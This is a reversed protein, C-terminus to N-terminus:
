ALKLSLEYDSLVQRKYRKELWREEETGKPATEELKKIIPKQMRMNGYIRAHDYLEAIETVTFNGKDLAKALDRARADFLGTHDEGGTKEILSKLEYLALEREANTKKM